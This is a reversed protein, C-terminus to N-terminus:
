EKRGEEEEGEGAGEQEKEATCSKGQAVMQPTAEARRSEFSLGFYSLHKCMLHREVYKTFIDAPNETGDVKKLVFDGRRLRDQVWLDAVGM